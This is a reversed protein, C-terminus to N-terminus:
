CMSPCGAEPDSKSSQGRFYTRGFMFTMLVVIDRVIRGRRRWGECAALSESLVGGGSGGGGAVRPRIQPVTAAGNM